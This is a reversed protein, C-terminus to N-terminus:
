EATAKTGEKGRSPIVLTQGPTIRDDLNNLGNLRKVEPVLKLADQYSLGFQHMLIKLVTDGPRVTVAFDQRVPSKEKLSAIPTNGLVTQEIKPVSVPNRPPIGVAGPVIARPAPSPANSWEAPPNFEGSRYGVISLLATLALASLWLVRKDRTIPTRSGDPANLLLERATKERNPSPEPPLAAQKPVRKPLINALSRRLAEASESLDLVFIGGAKRFDDAAAPERIMLVVETEEPLLGRLHRLIESGALGSTRDEVFVYHPMRVAIEEEGQALTPAVRLRFLGTQGLGTFLTRVEEQETILLVTPM